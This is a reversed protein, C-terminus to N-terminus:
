YGVTKCRGECCRPASAECEERPPRQCGAGRRRHEELNISFGCNSGDHCFHCDADETCEFDSPHMGSEACVRAHAAPELAGYRYHPPTWPDSAEEESRGCALFAFLALVTCLHRSM